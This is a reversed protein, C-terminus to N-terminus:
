CVESEKDYQKKGEHYAFGRNNYAEAYKPDIEIAKNYDSIATDYQGKEDYVYGRNYYAGALKPNIEIAKNFYAIARDHQGKEVFAAGQNLLAVPDTEKIEETTECGILISLIFCIKFTIRLLLKM